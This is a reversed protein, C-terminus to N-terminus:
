ASFTISHVTLTKSGRRERYFPATNTQQTLHALSMREKERDTETMTQMYVLKRGIYRACRIARGGGGGGKGADRDRGAAWSTRFFFVILVLLVLIFFLLLLVLLVLLLLLLLLLSLFLLFFFLICFVLPCHLLFVVGVTVM